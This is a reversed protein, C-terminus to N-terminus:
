RVAVLEKSNRIEQGQGDKVPRDQAPVDVIRVPPETYVAHDPLHRETAVLMGAGGSVVVALVLWPLRGDAALLVTFLSPAVSAALSWSLQYTALYRGRASEPAASVSLAGASPSHVLEGATYLVLLVVLGIMLMTPPLGPPLIAYGVFSAAFLLAGVAAVRTRRAYRRAWRGVPVGAFACLATNVAFLPGAVSAPLHLRSVAYAPLLLTLASYGLAILFNAGTLAAFPKDRLVKNRGERQIERAAPRANPLGVALLAAILFSLANAWAAVVFGTDGAFGIIAAAILGGAGLGGNRVSRTLAMLRDRRAGEAIEGILAQQIAPFAREGAVTVTSIVAFVPLTAGLPYAVFGAARLLYVYQRMRHAGWRDILLGAVPLVAMGVLGAVTLVAGIVPLPLHTVHQFFILSFPVYMGSGVSDILMGAVLARESRKSISGTAAQKTAATKTPTNGTPAQKTPANSTPAQKAPPVANTSPVAKM